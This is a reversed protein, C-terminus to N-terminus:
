RNLNGEQDRFNHSKGGLCPTLPQLKASGLMLWGNQRLGIEWIGGNATKKVFIDFVGSLGDVLDM